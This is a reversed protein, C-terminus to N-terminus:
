KRSSGRRMTSQSCRSSIITSRRDDLHNHHYKRRASRYRFEATPVLNFLEETVLDAYEESDHTYLFSLLNCIVINFCSSKTSYRALRCPRSRTPTISAMYM